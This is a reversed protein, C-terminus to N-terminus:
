ISPAKIEEPMLCPSTQMLEAFQFPKHSGECFLFIPTSMWHFLIIKNKFCFIFGNNGEPKLNKNGSMTMISSQILVDVKQKKNHQFM